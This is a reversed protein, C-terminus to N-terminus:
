FIRLDQFVSMDAKSLRQLDGYSKLVFGMLNHLFFKSLQRLM